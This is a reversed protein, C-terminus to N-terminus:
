KTFIARINNRGRKSIFNDNYLVKLGAEKAMFNVSKNDHIVEHQCMFRDHCEDLFGIDLVSPMEIYIMGKKNIFGKLLKLFAVPEDVHEVVHNATILDFNNGVIDISDSSLYMNLIEVGHKEAVIDVGQTPEIVISDWEPFHKKFGYSFVGLGGGIDMHSGSDNLFSELFSYKEGNESSEVPLNSIRDFYEEHTENRLEVDRFCSYLEEKESETLFTNRYTFGCSNCKKYFRNSAKYDIKMYDLYTDLCHSVNLVEKGEKKGCIKCKSSLM